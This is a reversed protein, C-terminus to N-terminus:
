KVEKLSSDGSGFTKDGINFTRVARTDDVRVGDLTTWFPKVSFTSNAEANTVLEETGEWVDVYGGITNIDAAMIKTVSTSNRQRISFSSYFTATKDATVVKFGALGYINNDTTTILYLNDIANNSNTDYVTQVRLGLFAQPM